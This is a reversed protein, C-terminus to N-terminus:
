DAVASAARAPGRRVARPRHASKALQMKLPRRRAPRALQPVVNKPITAAAARLAPASAVYRGHLHRCQDEIHRALEELAARSPTRGPQPSAQVAAVHTQLVQLDHLKGLMEQARKITRVLAPAEKTGSDAALELGYRLKKSAIRVQHLGEPAYVHGAGDIAARLRRSRKLLQAGLAKRWPEEPAQHLAESVSTLRRSLKDLDVRDLRKLMVARRGDREAVVHTRVDEIATRSLHPSRALQDLLGLTVDLERVTGLARTLRRIKRQAKGAKSGKWGTSLVPVAERLRRSAVRAQHVGRDDGAVATPVHRALARALRQLLVPTVRPVGSNM